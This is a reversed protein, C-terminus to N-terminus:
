VAYCNFYRSKFNWKPTCTKTQAIVLVFSATDTGIGCTIHTGM